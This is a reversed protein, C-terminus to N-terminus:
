QSCGPMLPTRAAAEPYERVFSRCIDLAYRDRLIPNESHYAGIAAWTKGYKREMGELRAAGAEINQCPDLLQPVDLGMKRLKPLHRSNIGMPHIDFSGDRNYSIGSRLRSEKKALLYLIPAAVRHRQAAEEFCYGSAQARVALLGFLVLFLCFRKM